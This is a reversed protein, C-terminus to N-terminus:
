ICLTSELIFFVGMMNEALGRVINELAGKGGVAGILKGAVRIGVVSGLLKGKWATEWSSRESM